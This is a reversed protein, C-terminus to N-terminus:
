KRRLLYRGDTSLFIEADGLDIWTGQIEDAPPEIEHVEAWFRRGVIEGYLVTAFFVITLIISLWQWFTLSRM